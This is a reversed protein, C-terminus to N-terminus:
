LSSDEPSPPSWNGFIYDYSWMIYYGYHRSGLHHLLNKDYFKSTYFINSFCIIFLVFILLFPGMNIFIHQMVSSLDRFDDLIRLDSYVKCFSFLVAVCYISITNTTRAGDNFLLFVGSVYYMGICFFDLINASMQFYRVLPTSCVQIIELLLMPVASLIILWSIIQTL